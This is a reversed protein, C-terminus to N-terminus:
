IEWPLSHIEEQLASLKFLIEDFSLREGYIMTRLMAEYDNRWAEELEGTPLINIFNPAHHSYDIGSIHTLKDRNHVITTYLEKDALAQKAFDQGCMKAVDYLHRSMRDIRASPKQMDEHILFIKELFTRGPTAVPITVPHDAFPANPYQESLISRIPVLENPETLSRAGIEILVKPRIYSGASPLVSNFAVEIIQPDTSSDETLPTNITYGEIGIAHLKENLEVVLENLVYACLAQRITTIDKRRKIEGGLGFFNRDISVDIDESMRDILGWCKSLSTGGKFNGFPAFRCQFLAALCMTVWWDKEVAAVDLNQSIATQQLIEARQRSPIELWKNM